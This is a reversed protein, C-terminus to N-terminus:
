LAKNCERDLETVKKLINPTQQKKIFAMFFTLIKTKIIKKPSFNSHLIETPFFFLLLKKKKWPTNVNDFM